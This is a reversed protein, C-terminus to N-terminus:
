HMLQGLTMTHFLELDPAKAKSLEQSVNKMTPRSEPNADLCSFALKAITFLEHSAHLTPPSLCGDLIDKLHVNQGTPSSSSTLSSILEGSHKGILVELTLVGFSYMDCKRTVRMTYALKPAVYGYTGVLETWNSSDPKLFRATGFDSVRAEYELDLLINSSSIDRHVLPPSCDHHLYSFANALGKINNVRRVWDLKVAEESDSLAINRHCVESLASIEDLFAKSGPGVGDELPHLKKVGVVQGTSLEAKYVSGYGGREICHGPCLDKNNKFAHFSLNQFVKNTPIRGELQNYSVDISLLSKMEKFSSPIHGSLMNHSLNLNVLNQLSGIESPIGETLENHSLDLLIDLSILDGIQTPISGNFGNNSLHLYLLKSCIGVEKPLPRSLNNSSIDLRDLESLSGIEKPLQGLSVPIFGTLINIALHLHVLSKLNGIEPPISGSLQNEFLYLTTLDSLNGLSTPITGSLNNRQLSLTSLSALNGIEPPISGFLQNNELGLDHLKTLNGVTSPIFGFLKNQDIALFVLHTLLGIERPIEWPRNDDGKVYALRRLKKKPNLEAERRRQFEAEKILKLEERRRTQTEKEEKKQEDRLNWSKMMNSTIEVM